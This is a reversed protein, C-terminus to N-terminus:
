FRRSSMTAHGRVPLRGLAAAAGHRLAEQPDEGRSLALTFGGVFSDGAGIASVVGQNAANVHWHGNPCAM